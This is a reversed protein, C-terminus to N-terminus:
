EKKFSKARKRRGQQNQRLEIWKKMDQNIDKPEEQFSILNAQPPIFSPNSKVAFILDDTDDYAGNSCAGNLGEAGRYRFNVRVAKYIPFFTTYQHNFFM